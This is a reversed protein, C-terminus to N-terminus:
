QSSASDGCVTEEGGLQSVSFCPQERWGRKRAMKSRTHCRTGSFSIAAVLADHGRRGEIASWGVRLGELRGGGELTGATSEAHCFRFVHQTFISPYNKLSQLFVRDGV